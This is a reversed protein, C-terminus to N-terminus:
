DKIVSEMAYGLWFLADEFNYTLYMLVGRTSNINSIFEIREPPVYDSNVVVSFRIDEAFNWAFANAFEYHHDKAFKGTTKSFDALVNKIDNRKCLVITKEQIELLEELTIEGQHITYVLTGESSIRTIYSM